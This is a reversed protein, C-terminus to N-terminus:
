MDHLGLKLHRWVQLRHLFTQPGRSINKDCDLQCCILDLQVWVQQSFMVLEESCGCKHKTFLRSFPFLLRLHCRKWANVSVLVAIKSVVTFIHLHSIFHPSTLIFVSLWWGCKHNVPRAFLLFILSGYTLGVLDYSVVSASASVNLCRYVDQAVHKRASPGSPYFVIVCECAEYLSKVSVASRCESDERWSMRSDSAPDSSFVDMWQSVPSHSVVYIIWVFFFFSLLFVNGTLLRLCTPSFGDCSVVRHFGVSNNSTSSSDVCSTVCM